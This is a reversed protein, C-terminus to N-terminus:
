RLFNDFDSQNAVEPYDYHDNQSETFIDYVMGISLECLSHVSIGCQFCRLM